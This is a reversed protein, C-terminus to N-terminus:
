YSRRSRRDADSDRVLLGFSAAGVLFAFAAAIFAITFSGTRQVIWGTLMPSVIGALNGCANQIGTWRGTALPGALTQTLPFLNSAYIGLSLCSLCLGALAFEIRPLLVTPLFAATLLLGTVLFGRRVRVPAAGRRIMRDSLIGGSLTTIAMLLFPLAGGVSLSNLSFHRERLLYTPLWTLLFYWGYNTFCLGGCTGWVDRRGLLERWGPGAGGAGAAVPTLIRPAMALWPILWILGACGTILFLGRWGMGKVFQAGFMIGFAPGLRAGLDIISNALGRRNEPIVVALIRGTAPYTVCEGVGLLLRMALLGAFSTMAATSLTALSWILFGATYLWKVEFRDALWGAGIQGAAYTWFFASLLLGLAVDSLGLEPKLIQAAVSLNGRDFFSIWMAIFLVIVLGWPLKTPKATATM